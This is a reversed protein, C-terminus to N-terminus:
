KPVSIGMKECMKKQNDTLSKYNKQVFEEFEQDIDRGMQFWRGSHRKICCM